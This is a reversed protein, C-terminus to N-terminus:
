AIRGPAVVRVISRPSQALHWDVTRAIGSALDVKPQWRLHEVAPEINAVL